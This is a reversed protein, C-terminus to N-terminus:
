RENEMWELLLTRAEKRTVKFEDQISTAAGMMNMSGIERIIDIFAFVEKKDIQEMPRNKPKVRYLTLDSIQTPSDIVNKFEEDICNRRQVPQGTEGAEQYIKALALCQNKYSDNLKM